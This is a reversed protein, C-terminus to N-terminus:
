AHVTGERMRARSAAQALVNTNHIVASQGASGFRASRSVGGVGSGQALQQRSPLNNKNEKMAFTRAAADWDLMREGRSRHYNMFKELIFDLDAPHGFGNAELWARLTPGAQWGKPLLHKGKAKSAVEPPTLVFEEPAQVTAAAQAQLDALTDRYREAIRSCLERMPAFVMRGEQIVWGEFLEDYHAHLDEDSLGTIGALTRLSSPVTGAPAASWAHAFLSFLARVVAPDQSHFAPSESLWLPDLPVYPLGKMTPLDTATMIM